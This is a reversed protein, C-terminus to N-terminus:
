IGLLNMRRSLSIQRFLVLYRMEHWVLCVSDRAYLLLLYQYKNILIYLGGQFLSMNLSWIINWSIFTLLLQRLIKIQMGEWKKFFLVVYIPHIKLRDSKFTKKIKKHEWWRRKEQLNFWSARLIVGASQNFILSQPRGPLTKILSLVPQFMRPSFSKHCTKVVLGTIYKQRHGQIHFTAHCCDLSLKTNDVKSKGCFLLYNHMVRAVVLLANFRKM